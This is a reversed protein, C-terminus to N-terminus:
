FVTQDYFVKIGQNTIHYPRPQLDQATGRMKTIQITRTLQNERVVDRLVIVGQALYEEVTFEKPSFINSTGFQTESTILCTCGIEYISKFLHAIERRREAIDPQQVSLSTLCDVAIREGKSAVNRIPELVAEMTLKTEDAKFAAKRFAERSLYVLNSLDLLTLKGQKKLEDLNWGFRWMEKKVSDLDDALTVFIGRENFKKAGNYLFQIAFITKGTGPGGCIVTSRGKPLGGEMLEDLGLIGTPVREIEKV